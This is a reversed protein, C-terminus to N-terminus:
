LGMQRRYVIVCFKSVDTQGSSTSKDADIGDCNHTPIYKCM